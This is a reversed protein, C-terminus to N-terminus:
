ITLKQKNPPTLLLTKVLIDSLRCGTLLPQGILSAGKKIAMFSVDNVILEYIM